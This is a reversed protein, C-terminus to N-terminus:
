EMWSHCVGFSRHALVHAVRLADAFISKLYRVELFNKSVLVGLKRVDSDSNFPDETSEESPMESVDFDAFYYTPLSRTRFLYNSRKKDNVEAYYLFITSPGRFAFCSGYANHFPPRVLKSLLVQHEHLLQM